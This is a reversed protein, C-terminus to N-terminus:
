LIAVYKRIHISAQPIYYYVSPIDSIDLSCPHHNQLQMHLFQLFSVDCIVTPPVLLPFLPFCLDAAFTAIFIIMVYERLHMLNSKRVYSNHCNKLHM